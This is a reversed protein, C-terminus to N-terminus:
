TVRKYSSYLEWIEKEIQDILSMQSRPSIEM